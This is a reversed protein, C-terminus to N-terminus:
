ASLNASPVSFKVTLGDPHWDHNLEGKFQKVITSELLKSGFGKSSPTSAITPGGREIWQLELKEAVTSWIVGVKGGETKLAGYKVSNTALEHFVMAIGSLAHEGCVISPGSITFRSSGNVPHGDYPRVITKLLDDLDTERSFGPADGFSRRVLANATALAHLRGSLATVMEDKTTTGKASVRVMGDTMAFLNKVRHSMEATLTEQEELARTLRQDSRQMRLAIGVFAALETMVRAHGSDFHGEDNSVIWLTGLPATGGLYLPVLLVEPLVIKADSIWSYVQEAHAALVPTNQDLTIGCPSFNRPTTAGNFSELTGRLYHWRFVGPSPNEEYLSLGASIGGTMEMALDVFRPLVEDPRDVMLAALDQIALKEKLFDAKSPVRKELQGTIYVHAVSPEIIQLGM